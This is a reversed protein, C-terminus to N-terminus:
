ASVNPKRPKAANRCGHLYTPLQAWLKGECVSAFEWRSLVLECFFTMECTQGENSLIHAKTTWVWLPFARRPPCLGLQQSRSSVGCVWM